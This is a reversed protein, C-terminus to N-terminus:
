AGATRAAEIADRIAGLSLEAPQSGNVFVTPTGRVGADRGMSLDRDVTKRYARGEAAARVEDGDADIDNALREYTDPSLSDQNAFLSDAYAFFAEDGHGDQVARAANAAEFSRPAHMELPFDRFEYTVVGPEVYDRDIVPVFQEHFRRCAPCAFDEHVTLTVDGEGRTPPPLTEPVATATETETGSEGLGLCGATAVVAGGVGATTTLFARRTTHDREGHRM